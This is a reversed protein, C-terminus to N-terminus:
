KTLSNAYNVIFALERAVTFSLDNDKAYKELQKAQGRYVALLDKKPNRLPIINGAPTALFFDDRMETYSGLYRSGGYPYGYGYPNGYGTVPREVLSERRVLLTPGNSLQEFFAPSKYDSYDNGHNWRYTRFVRVRATDPAEPQRRLPPLGAYAPSGYYYGNRADYFNDYYANRRRDYREGKVAFSTIAVASLTTVTGDPQSVLVVDRDRHLSLPGRLTDGTALLVTSGDFQQVLPQQQALAVGLSAWVLGLTAGSKKM